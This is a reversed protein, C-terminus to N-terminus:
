RTQKACKKRRRMVLLTILGGIVFFFEFSQPNASESLTTLGIGHFTTSYGVNIEEYHSPYNTRLYTRILDGSCHTPCIKTLNKVLLEDVLVTIAEIEEEILHFGGIIAYPQIGLDDIAKQVITGAGPHGCGAFIILGLGNVNIALAQENIPDFLGGIIAIDDRILYTSDIEVMTANLSSILQKPYSSMYKPVYVTINPNQEAIYSFGHVHDRHGHSIVVLDLQNLSLGLTEANEQLADPDPGTDFLITLDPTEILISLGWPANLIGNPYNDILVTMTVLDVTSELDFKPQNLSTAIQEEQTVSECISINLLLTILISGIIIERLWKM